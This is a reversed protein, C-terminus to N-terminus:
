DKSASQANSGGVTFGAEWYGPRMASTEANTFRKHIAIRETPAFLFVYPSEEHLMVQFRKNMEARKNEDLEVRISDILADSENNGFGVYNSGGNYSETHFIQKHDNPVPSSIWSGVFMEFRHNKQNDLYVDWAQTVVNVKIGVKRAEEQFMLVMAKRMDNGSNYSFEITLETPEGNIVKDLTGDGNTDKWGAESLLQKAKEVNFDYPAIDKNYEKSKSPHIPGIIQQAQNYYITKIMKDVDCLHALAQRTKKDSFKPLRTNIGFYIYALQMPTSLNFNDAVKSSKPLEVFDKPKISRMVDINGGKLAVLATTLDNITQYTIRPPKAEFYANKNAAKDGWWNEKRALVIRQGTVWEQLKYAGSGVISAAERQFKESNFDNAFELIKPDNELSAKDNTLQKINFGSMLGKPDYIYAPLIGYDGSSAEALIYVNKCFLTFKRPNNEDIKIDEIFEYYPKNQPNNVKPNKIVKLTFEVDKATIPTGNDWQAEPRIEYTINMKKGDDTKEIQPRSVALVPVLDLTKFDVDMLPQFLNKLIYGAGADTYNIPNLMDADSLEHIVVDPSGGKTEASKSSSSSCAGFLSAIFAGACLALVKPNFTM